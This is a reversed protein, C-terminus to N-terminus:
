LESIVVQAYPIQRNNNEFSHLLSSPLRVMMAGFGYSECCGMVDGAVETVMMSM